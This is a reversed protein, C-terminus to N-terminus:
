IINDDDNDIKSPAQKCFRFHIVCNSTVRGSGSEGSKRTQFDILIRSVLMLFLSYQHTMNISKVHGLQGADSM